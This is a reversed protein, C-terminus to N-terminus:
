EERSVMSELRNTERKVAKRSMHAFFGMITTAVATLAAIGYRGGALHDLTYAGGAGACIGSALLTASYLKIADNAGKPTFYTDQAM